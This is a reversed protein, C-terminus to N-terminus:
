SKGTSKNQPTVLRAVYDARQVHLKAVGRTLQVVGSNPLTFDSAQPGDAALTVSREFSDDISNSLM